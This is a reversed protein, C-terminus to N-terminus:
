YYYLMEKEDIKNRAKEIERKKKTDNLVYPPPYVIPGRVKYRNMRQLYRLNREEQLRRLNERGEKYKEIKNENKKRDLVKKFIFENENQIKQMEDILYNMNKEKLKLCDNTEKIIEIITKHKDKETINKEFIASYLEYILEMNTDILEQYKYNPPVIMNEKEYDYKVDKLEREHAKVKEKLESLEVEQIKRQKYLEEDDDEKKSLLKIINSELTFYINGLMIPDNFFEPIKYYGSLLFDFEHILKSVVNEIDKDKKQINVWDLKINTLQEYPQLAYHVFDAYSKFKLIDRITKEIEDQTTRFEQNLIKTREFLLKNNHVAEGLKIELEKFQQTKSITFNQFMNKDKEFEKNASELAKSVAQEKNNIKDREYNLLNILINKLFIERNQNTFTHMDIRNTGGFKKYAKQQNERTLFIEQMIKEAEFINDVKEVPFYKKKDIESKLDFNKMCDGRLTRFHIDMIEQKNKSANVGYINNNSKIQWVKQRNNNRKHIKDDIIKVESLGFLTDDTEAKSLSQSEPSLPRKKILNKLTKPYFHKSTNNLNNTKPNNNNIIEISKRRLPSKMTKYMTSGAISPFNSYSTTIKSKM